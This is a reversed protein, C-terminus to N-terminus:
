GFNEAVFRNVELMSLYRGDISRALQGIVAGGAASVIRKGAKNTMVLALVRGKSTSLGLGSISDGPEDSNSGAPWTSRKLSDARCLEGLASRINKDATELSVWKLTAEALTRPSIYESEDNTTEAAKDEWITGLSPYQALLPHGEPLKWTLGNIGPDYVLDVLGEGEKTQLPVVLGEVGQRHFKQNYSEGVKLGRSAQEPTILGEVIQFVTENEGTEPDYTGIPEQERALVAVAVRKWAYVEAQQKEFGARLYDAIRIAERLGAKEAVPPM